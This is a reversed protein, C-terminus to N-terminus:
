NDDKIIEERSFDEDSKDESFDCGLSQKKNIQIRPNLVKGIIESEINKPRM